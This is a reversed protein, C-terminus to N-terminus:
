IWGLGHLVAALLVLGVVAAVALCGVSASALGLGAVVRLPAPVPPAPILDPDPAFPPPDDPRAVNFCRGCVVRAVQTGTLEDVTITVPEGPHECTCVDPPPDVYPKRRRM